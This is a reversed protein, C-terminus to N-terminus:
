RRISDTYVSKGEETNKWEDPLSEYLKEVEDRYPFEKNYKLSNGLGELSNMWVKNVATQRMLRINNAMVRRQLSDQGAQLCKLQAIISERQEGSANQLTRSLAVVEMMSQQFADWEKKSAEILQQQFQQCEAGGEVSWTRLLANEGKVKLHTDPDIWLSLWVPPLKGYDKAMVDYEEVENSTTMGEFFFRGNRLTDVAVEAGVGGEDKYLGLVTGEDVGSLTGEITFRGQAQAALTGALMCALFLKRM